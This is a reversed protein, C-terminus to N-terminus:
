FFRFNSITSPQIVNSQILSACDFATVNWVPADQHHDLFLTAYEGTATVVVDLPVHCDPSELYRSWVIKDSASDTGGTPDIGIRLSCSKDSGGERYTNVYARGHLVHGPLVAVRQYIGGNKKDYNGATLFYRVGEYPSVNFKSGTQVGDTKGYPIWPLLSGTEFSGNVIKEVGSMLNGLSSTRFGCWTLTKRTLLSLNGDEFLGYYAGPFDKLCFWHAQAFKKDSSFYNFCAKM